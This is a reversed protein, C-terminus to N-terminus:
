IDCGCRSILQQTKTLWTPLGSVQTSVLATNDPLRAAADWVFDALTIDPVTVDSYPSRVINQEQTSLLRTVSFDASFASFNEITVVRRSTATSYVRRGQRVVRWGLRLSSWTGMPAAQPTGLVWFVAHEVHTCM